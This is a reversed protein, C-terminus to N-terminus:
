EGPVRLGWGLAHTVTEQTGPNRGVGIPGAGGLGKWVM